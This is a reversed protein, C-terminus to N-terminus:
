LAFLSSSSSSSSSSPSLPTGVNLELEVQSTVLLTSRQLGTKKERSAASGSKTLKGDVDSLRAERIQAARERNRKTEEKRINSPKLPAKDRGRGEKILGQRELKNFVKVLLGSYAQGQYECYWEEFISIVTDRV